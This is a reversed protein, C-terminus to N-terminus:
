ASDKERAFPGLIRGHEVIEDIMWDYGCFGRSKERLNKAESSSIEAVTVDATWGDGFNYHFHEKDLVNLAREINAKGRFSRTRSYPRGAGSWQGNWANNNPMSLKFSLMM